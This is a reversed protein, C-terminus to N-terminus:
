WAKSIRLQVASWNKEPTDNYFHSNSGQGLTYQLTSFWKNDYKHRWSIGTSKVYFRHEPLGTTASQKKGTPDASSSVWSDVYISLQDHDSPRHRVSVVTGIPHGDKGGFLNNFYSDWVPGTQDVLIGEVTIDFENFFKRAGITHVMTSLNGSSIFPVQSKFEFDLHTIDYRLQTERSPSLVTFNLGKVISKDTIEGPFAANFHGAIINEMPNLIPKAITGNVGLEWNDIDFIKYIQIGDGSSALQKFQERYIAPPQNIFEACCPISRTQNYFGLLHQIRGIRMGYGGPGFDAFMYKIIQASEDNSVEIQTNLTAYETNWSGILGASVLNSVVSESGIGNSLGLTTSMYTRTFNTTIWPQEEGFDDAFSLSSFCLSTLLILSRFLGM